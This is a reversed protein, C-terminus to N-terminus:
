NVQSLSFTIHFEPRLIVFLLLRGLRNRFVLFNPVSSLFKGSIAHSSVHGALNARGTAKVNM